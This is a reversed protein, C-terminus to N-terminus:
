KVEKLVRYKLELVAIYLRYLRIVEEQLAILHILEQSKEYVGM